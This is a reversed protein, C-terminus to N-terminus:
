KVTVQINKWFLTTNKKRQTRAKQNTKNKKTELIPPESKNKVGSLYFFGTQEDTSNDVTGGWQTILLHFFFFLNYNFM